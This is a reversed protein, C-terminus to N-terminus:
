TDDIVSLKERNFLIFPARSHNTSLTDRRSNMYPWLLPVLSAVSLKRFIKYNSLLVQVVVLLCSSFFGIM